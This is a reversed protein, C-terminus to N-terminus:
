GGLCLASAPAAANSTRPSIRPLLIRSGVVAKASMLARKVNDLIIVSVQPFAFPMLSAPAHRAWGHSECDEGRAGITEIHEDVSKM